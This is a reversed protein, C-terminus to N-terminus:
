PRSTLDYRGRGVRQVWANKHPLASISARLQNPNKPPEEHKFGRKRVEEALEDISLPRGAATLADIVLAPLSPRGHFTTRPPGVAKVRRPANMPVITRRDAHGPM